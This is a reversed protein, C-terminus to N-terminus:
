GNIPLLSSWLMIVSVEDYDSQFLSGNSDTSPTPSPPHPIPITDPVSDPATSNALGMEEDDPKPVNTQLAVGDVPSMPALVQEKPADDTQGTTASKVVTSDEGDNGIALAADTM